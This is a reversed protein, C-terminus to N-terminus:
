FRVQWLYQWCRLYTEGGQTATSANHCFAFLPFAPANAVLPVLTYVHVMSAIPHALILQEFEKLSHVQMLAM